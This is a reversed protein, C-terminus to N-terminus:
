WPHGLRLHLVPKGKLGKAAVSAEGASPVAVPSDAPTIVPVARPQAQRRGVIGTLEVVAHEAEATTVKGATVGDLDIRDAGAVIARLYAGRHAYAALAASLVRRDIDSGRERVAIGVKPTSV